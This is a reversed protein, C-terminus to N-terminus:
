GWTRQKEDGDGCAKWRWCVIVQFVFKVEVLVEDFVFCGCKEDLHFAVRHNPSPNVGTVQEDDIPSKLWRIVTDDDGHDIAFQGYLAQTFAIPM